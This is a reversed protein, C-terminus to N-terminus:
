PKVGGGDGALDALILACLLEAPNETVPRGLIEEARRVRYTITNQHVFLERAAQGSSRNNRMFALLTERLRRHLDDDGALEGLRRLVFRRAREADASLLATLEVDDYLTVAGLREGALERVRAAEHAEDHAVRFGDAGAGHGGGVSVCVGDPPRYGALERFRSAERRGDGGCWVDLATAGASVVMPGDCGLIAAAAFAADELGASEGDIPWVYLATHTRRLEYGLRRSAADEDVREGALIARVTDARLKEASPTARGQEAAFEESLAASVLDIYDFMWRSSFEVAEALMDPDKVRLRLEEAWLDWIWAHGLRYTRLLVPIQLGRNIFGRVYARAEPTIMLDEAASGQHMLLYSQAINSACSAGTERLMEGDGGGLEPINEHLHEAMGRGLEPARDAFAAALEAVVAPMAAAGGSGGNVRGSSTISAAARGGGTAQSRPDAM